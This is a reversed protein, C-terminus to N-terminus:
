VRVRVDVVATDMPQDGDGVGRRHARVGPDHYGRRDHRQHPGPQAGREDRQRHHHRRGLSPLRQHVHAVPPDGPLTARTPHGVGRHPLLAVGGRRAFVAARLRRLAARRGHHPDAHM